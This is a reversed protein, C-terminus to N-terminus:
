ISSDPSEGFCRQMCEEKSHYSNKNGRCGGYIFKDCSNKEANFYWRPFAARCPGTVAKATCYEPLSVTWPTCTLLAWSLPGSSSHEWATM